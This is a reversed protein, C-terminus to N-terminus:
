FCVQVLACFFVIELVPGATIDDKGRSLIPALHCDGKGPGFCRDCSPHCPKCKNMAARAEQAVDRRHEVVTDTMRDVHEVYSNRPCAKLCKQTTEDFFTKATCESEYQNDGTGHLRLHFLRLKGSQDPSGVNEIRLKWRKGPVSAPEDWMHVTLFEFNDFGKSSYDHPRKELINSETGLPSFISIKLDGRRDFDLSLIVIVHELRSVFQECSPDIEFEVEVADRRVIDRQANAKDVIRTTCNRQEPVSDWDRAAEVLLGADMLGYGYRHSYERDVGNRRWDPANLKRRKSTQVVLHQMDRWTLESNAELALAVIAAAIPASASTGTHRLM